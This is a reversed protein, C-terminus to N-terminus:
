CGLRLAEQEARRLVPTAGAPNVKQLQKLAVCADQHKGLGELSLGLKLLNDPAKSAQPYKQYGEAFIRAAKDFNGRVYYTEGLWYKANAALPNNPNEDLFNQFEVEAADYQNNKLLAFANEYAAAAMDNSGNVAGSESETYTGLQGSANNTGWQYGNGGSSATADGAAPESEQPKQATYRPPTNESRRSAGGGKELDQLRLEMDSTVKELQEQVQRTQYSQEELRGNMTQLQSELQQLRVEMDTTAGGSFAGPPPEEGRYIARSLTNIENELRKMRNEVDSQALAPGSVCLAAFSLLGLVSWAKQYHNNLRSEVM